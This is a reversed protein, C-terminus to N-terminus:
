QANRLWANNSISTAHKELSENMARNVTMHTVKIVKMFLTQNGEFNSSSGQWQIIDDLLCKRSFLNDRVSLQVSRASDIWYWSHFRTVARILSHVSTIFVSLKDERRLLSYFFLHTVWVLENWEHFIRGTLKWWNFTIDYLERTRRVCCWRAVGAISLQEPLPPFLILNQKECFNIPAKLLLLKDSITM